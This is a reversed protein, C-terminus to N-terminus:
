RLKLTAIGLAAVVVAIIWFRIVIQTETWGSQKFHHHIPACKFLRKPTGTLRRTLKYYGVQLMVSGAELVFVGGVFVLLFEQKVLVAILGIAGGLSLSGTDGMFMSAPHCNHWLFGLGAGAIATAIVTIESGGQIHPIGLYEALVSHGCLYAFVAYAGACIATCGVALGDMGDSLNVANSSGILVLVGFIIVIGLPVATWIPTKVFPVWISRMHMRAEPVSDMWYIAGAAILLQFFLKTRSSIGDRGRKRVKLIDDAFGLIGLSVMLSLFVWVLSNHLNTWLLISVVTAGLILIGGMSPVDKKLAMTTADDKVLGELRNPAVFQLHKLFSVTLPGFIVTIVFASFAAGAARFTVYKLLPIRPFISMPDLGLENLFYIM